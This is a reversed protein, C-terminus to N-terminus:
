PKGATNGGDGNSHLGRIWVCSRVTDSYYRLVVLLSDYTGVVANALGM